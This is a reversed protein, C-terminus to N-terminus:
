ALLADLESGLLQARWGSKLNVDRRGRVLGAVDHRSGLLSPSIGSEKAIRRLCDLIQKQLARQDASLPQEKPWVVPHHDQYAVDRILQLVEEGFRRVFKSSVGEVAALKGPSDPKVQAMSELVKDKVVWNRPLDLRQSTRERWTALEKLVSQATPELAQGHEIRQYAVKPDTDYLSVDSLEMCEELVWQLRGCKELGAGLYNYIEELYRVDDIAYDIQEPSLPRQCWDTRTHAKTLSKGTVIEVLNAYGIQDGLGLMAAAVQTDFVTRPVEKCCGYLVEIDQRAAHFIRTKDQARLVERFDDTNLDLALPDICYIVERAYVQLLCFKPYYTKVRFFETDIALVETSSMEPWFAELDERSEILQQRM